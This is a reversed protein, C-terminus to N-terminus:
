EASSGQIQAALFRGQMKWFDVNGDSMGSIRKLAKDAADKNGTKFYLRSAAYNAESRIDEDVLALNGIRDFEKAAADLDGKLEMIYSADMETRWRIEKPLNSSKILNLQALADDYKKEDIFIRVLRMRARASAPSNPYEKLANLLEAETKAVGLASVAKNASSQSVHMIIGYVAVALVIASGVGLMLKWHEHVFIEFREFDDFVEKADKTKLKMKTMIFSWILLIKIYVTPLIDKNKM